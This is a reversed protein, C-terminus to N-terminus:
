PDDDYLADSAPLPSLLVVPKGNHQFEALVSALDPQCLKQNGRLDLHQLKGRTVKLASCILTISELPMLNYGAKVSILQPAQSILKVVFEAAHIGGRNESINISVLNVVERLCKQLELFGSSGLGVDRADLSKISSHLFKGLPAAVRSGLDNDAISLSTLPNRLTSLVELLDTIGDCSLKCNKLNLNAFPFHEIAQAFYPILSRIGEDGFPNDSLDLSELVPMYGFASKLDEVDTKLLNNGRLNLVRLSQLSKTIQLSFCHGGSSKSFFDSLWGSINNESLDLSSLNSSADLLTKFVLKAYSRGIHCDCFSLSSLSRGSLFLALMDSFFTLNEDALKSAKVAFHMVGFAQTAKRFLSGCIADIFPSSLKCNALELSTLTESNQVLIRCLGDVQMENCIRKVILGQLESNRLLNLTEATCFVNQLRLSRAYCGFQLCHDYLQSYCHAVGDIQRDCSIAKIMAEPIKIESICGDFSPLLAREAASDFCQQLHTEWYKQQWDCMSNIVSVNVIPSQESLGHWRSQYLAMWAINFKEYRMRKRGNGFLNYHFADDEWKEQPMQLQLNQLALAPLRELLCDFLEAPLEYVDRLIADNHGSLLQIKVVDMCLDILSSVKAM